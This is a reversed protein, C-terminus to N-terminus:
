TGISGLRAAGAKMQLHLFIWTSVKPPIYSAGDGVWSASAMRSNRRGEPHDSNPPVASAQGSSRVTLLDGVRESPPRMRMQQRWLPNRAHARWRLIPLRSLIRPDQASMTIQKTTQLNGRTFDIAQARKPSFIAADLREPRAVFDRSLSGGSYAASRKGGPAQSRSPPPILTEATQQASALLRPQHQYRPRTDGRGRKHMTNVLDTAPLLILVVETVGPRTYSNCQRRQGLRFDSALSAHDAARAHHCSRLGGNV